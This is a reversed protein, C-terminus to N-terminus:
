HIVGRRHRGQSVVFLLAYRAYRMANRALTVFRAQAEARDTTMMSTALGALLAVRIARRDNM